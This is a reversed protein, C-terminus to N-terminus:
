RSVYLDSTIGFFTVIAILEKALSTYLIPQNQILVAWHAMFVDTNSTCRADNSLNNVREADLAFEALLLLAERIEVRMLLFTSLNSAVIRKASLLKLVM